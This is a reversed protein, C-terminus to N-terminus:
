PVKKQKMKLRFEELEKDTLFPSKTEPSTDYIAKCVGRIESSLDEMSTNVDALTLNIKELIEKIDNLTTKLEAEELEKNTSM